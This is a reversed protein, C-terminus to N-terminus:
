RKHFPRLIKILQAASLATSFNSPCDKMKRCYVLDYDKSKMLLLQLDEHLVINLATFYCYGVTIIIM